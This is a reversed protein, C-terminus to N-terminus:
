AGGDRRSLQPRRPRADGDGRGPLRRRPQDRRSTEGVPPTAPHTEPAQLTARAGITRTRATERHHLDCTRCHRHGHRDVRLNAGALRHGHPCTPRLPRRGPTFLGTAVAHLMNQSRTVYELNAAAPNTKDGDIHNVEHGAPAPGLFAQAVLTHVLFNRPRGAAWLQVTAYGNSGIPTRRPRGDARRVRGQDSVEYAPWGAVPKWREM